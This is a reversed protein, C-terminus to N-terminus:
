KIWAIVRINVPDPTGEIDITKAKIGGDVLPVIVWDGTAQVRGSLTQAFVRGLRRESGQNTAIQLVLDDDDSTKDFSLIAGTAPFASNDIVITVYDSGKAGPTYTVVTGNLAPTFDINTSGLYKWGSTNNMYKFKHESSDYYLEGENGDSAIDVPNFRIVGNNSAVSDTNISLRNASLENYSGHPSPYYTTITLDESYAVSAFFVIFFVIVVLVKKM